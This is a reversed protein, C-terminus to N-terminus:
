SADSARKAKNLRVRSLSVAEASFLHHYPKNDDVVFAELSLDLRGAEELHEFGDTPSRRLVIREVLEVVDGNEVARRVAQLYRYAWYPKRDGSPSIYTVKRGTTEYIWFLDRTLLELDDM